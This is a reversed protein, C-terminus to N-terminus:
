EPIFGDTQMAWLEAFHGNLALLEEQTGAEIIQGKHFVLIKDMDSLTSLRHAVVISTRGEMSWHLSEQILKETVSDLASTAEDLILIPADKLIARAIAIRQRQGGSLKIGREGVLTHYGEDLKEIFEHCHALKAAAIVAEDSAELRGYRINEILTRHFLSPEQPIMAIHQRLSEQTVTAINQGDIRIYGTDIDYFRLILNVFTSKGSGSFGVLGIKQGAPVTVNLNKFVTRTGRYSFDVQEFQIEGAFVQLAQAQPVDKLDHNKQVLSLAEEVTGLERTFVTMQYSIYWIWGLLWFVQMGVQTFDGITVTHNIWGDLLVYVVGFILFLGNIGLVVRMVELCWMAKKAKKMEDQQLTDLYASEYRRRAFLRVSLMNSFVDVVNGSLVAVSESHEGWLRNGYRLFLIAVSLHIVLWVLVILAFLPHTFWMMTLVIASGTMATVFQLSIIEVLAQCSTPLDALKKAINGAFQNSFYEHSHSQVYDFVVARIRARFTPFAYLQIVGQLRLFLENCIWFVVLLILINKLAFWVENREGTHEQLVNVIRKLFYPFVADNLAWMMSTFVLLSFKVWQERIFYAIFNFTTKPFSMIAGPFIFRM